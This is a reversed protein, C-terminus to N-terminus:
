IFVSTCLVFSFDGYIFFLMLAFAIQFVTGMTVVAMAGSVVEKNVDFKVQELKPYYDNWFSMRRPYFSGKLEPSTDVRLYARHSSNYKEWAVGSVSPDGSLAFNAYMKMIFSSVNRDAQSYYPYFKPLLPVGFDFFINEGHVVSMWEAGLSAKGRHAFEYM